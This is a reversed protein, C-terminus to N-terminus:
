GQEGREKRVDRIGKVTYFTVAVGLVIECAGWLTSWGGEQVNGIGSVLLFPLFFLLPSLKYKGM